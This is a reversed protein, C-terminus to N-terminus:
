AQKGEPTQRETLVEINCRNCDLNQSAHKKHRFLQPKKKIIFITALVIVIILAIVVGVASGYLSEGIEFYSICFHNFIYFYYLITRYATLQSLAM